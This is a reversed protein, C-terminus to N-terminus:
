NKSLYSCAVEFRLDLLFMLCAVESAMPRNTSKKTPAHVMDGLSHITKMCNHAQEAVNVNENM